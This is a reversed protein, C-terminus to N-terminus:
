RSTHKGQHGTACKIWDEAICAQAVTLKIKGKCVAHQLRVELKDKVKAGDAGEWPQLMLNSPNRPHGGLALPIIHDLEYDHIHSFEIGQQRMLYKKV